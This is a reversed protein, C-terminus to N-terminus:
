GISNFISRALTFSRGGKTSPTALPTRAPPAGLIGRGALTLPTGQQWQEQIRDWHGLDDHALPDRHGEERERRKPDVRQSQKGYELPGRRRQQGGPGQRYGEPETIPCCASMPRSVGATETPRTM